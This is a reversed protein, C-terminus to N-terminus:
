GRGPTVTLFLRSPLQTGAHPQFLAFFAAQRSRLRLLISHRGNATRPPHSKASSAPLYDFTAVFISMSVHPKQSFINFIDLIQASHM